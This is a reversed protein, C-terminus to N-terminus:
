ANRRASAIVRGRAPYGGRYHQARMLLPLGYPEWKALWRLFRVMLALIVGGLALAWYQRTVLGVPGILVVCPLSLVILLTRDCGIWLDPQTLATMIAYARRGSV